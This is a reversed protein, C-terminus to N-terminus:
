FDSEYLLGESASGINAQPCWTSDLWSAGAPKRRRGHASHSLPGNALMVNAWCRDNTRVGAPADIQQMDVPDAPWSEAVSVSQDDNGNVQLEHAHSIENM